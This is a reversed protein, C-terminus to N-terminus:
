VLGWIKLMRVKGQMDNRFKYECNLYQIIVKLENSYSEHIEFYLAGNENLNNLSYNIIKKYYVLPDDNPVFLAIEPEYDLVNKNMESKDSFPIYPPNSVIVDLNLGEEKSKLIDTNEFVVTLGLNEANGQAVSLAKQSIDLGRFDGKLDLALSNIICGSGTGIDLYKQNKKTKQDSIIWDVLEETEPRPILVDITVNHRNGYFETNGTIYQIPEGTNIRKEIASFALQKESTVIEKKNMEFQIRSWQNVHFLMIWFIALAERREIESDASELFSKQLKEYTM